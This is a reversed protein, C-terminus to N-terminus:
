LGPLVPSMVMGSVFGGGKIVVNKWLYPGPTAADQSPIVAIGSYPVPTPVNCTTAAMGDPTVAPGTDAALSRNDALADPIVAPADTPTILALDPSADPKPANAADATVSFDDPVAPGADNKSSSTGSCAVAVLQVAFFVPALSSRTM